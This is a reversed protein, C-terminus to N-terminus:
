AKQEILLGSIKDLAKAIQLMEETPIQRLVTDTNRDILKVVTKGTDEDVSFQLGQAMKDIFTQVEEVAEKVERNDIKQGSGVADVANATISTPAPSSGQSARFNETGASINTLAQGMVPPSNGIGQISMM